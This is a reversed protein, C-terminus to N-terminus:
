SPPAAVCPAAKCVDVVVGTRLFKAAQDVAMPNSPPDTHPDHGKSPPVNGIPAPPSGSDWMVLESGRHHRRRIRRIGWFPRVDTSRGSRLAPWHVGIGLTRAEVETAVNSVQHDGFAEHLLVQHRPTHPLPDRTVHNAYGDGEGRDWLMQALALIVQQQTRNPYSTDIVKQFPAFLKSRNLLTSFNIGPVGLLSRHFDQALATLATGEIGGLSYGTYTLRAHRDILSRGHADQFAPLAALGHRHTMARGLYLFSVYSQQLRDPVSPFTSFDKAMGLLWLVDKSSMGTWNTGCFMSDHAQAAANAGNVSTQDGFLGHGFLIPRAPRRRAARPINCQFSAHLVAGPKQAPRGNSGYHLRSGPPGGPKDLYSPVTVTGEVKRTIQANQAATYDTVKTVKTKPARHGLKAFADDRMHVARGTLNKTSAVTFDWALYLHRRGIGHRHLQHLTGRLTHWRKRLRRDRPPRRSILKKFAPNPAIRTGDSGRLNRLAVVYHHGETLNKAPRVILARKAPDRGGSDLEAWYPRRRGTDTDILVISADRRLSRGIDTQPAAGTKALDLGPVVSLLMSGPSFGDNRNLETPDIPTGSTNKPMMAPRLHVRRGTATHRDRVTYYDNPFPMLCQAPDIPDCGTATKAATGHPETQTTGALAAGPTLLLASTAVVAVLRHRIRRSSSM